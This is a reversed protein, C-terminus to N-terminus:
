GGRSYLRNLRLFEARDISDLQEKTIRYKWNNEAEGPTNMRTDGGYVLLDQIPFIVLGAASAMIRRMVIKCAASWESGRMDCYDFLRERYAADMEWIHGLLTNNDHTGTYAVSNNVYNHPLHLSSDDGLFAFQFVRMGPFGSYDRLAAVEDTIDGLDEAIILADGAESKIANILAKGPGKVWKGEKASKAGHPVSWFSELGRFHDIRIGDFLELMSRIRKRWFTFGDSRMKKYNYLPNYWLQGEESFYDPPVGAVSTPKRNEDLLFDDPNAWVDCSEESVYIPLDGILKIGRSNAYEKIDMWQSFFKYQIFRWVFLTDEDPTDNKWSQWPTNGNAERLALYRAALDLEPHERCFSVAPERDSVRMAARRLLPVRESSLREYEALYPTKERAAELEERCLLGERYLAEIDIFYPNAGFSSYSKYPSNYEDTMCLPLVQWYSFGSEALFDIFYKASDSFSGISYPGFLSSVHMLVGSARKM